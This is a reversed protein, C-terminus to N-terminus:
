IQHHAADRDLSMDPSENIYTGEQTTQSTIKVMLLDGIGAHSQAQWDVDEVKIDQGGPWSLFTLETAAGSRASSETYGDMSRIAHRASSM